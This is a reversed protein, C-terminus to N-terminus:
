SLSAEVLFVPFFMFVVLINFLDLTQLIELGALYFPGWIIIDQGFCVSDDIDYSPGTTNDFRQDFNVLLCSTLLSIYSGFIQKICNVFTMSLFGLM